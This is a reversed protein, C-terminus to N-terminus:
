SMDPVGRKSISWNEEPLEEPLSAGVVEIPLVEGLYQVEEISKVVVILAVDDVYAIM